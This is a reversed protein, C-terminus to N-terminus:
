VWERPNQLVDILKEEDSGKEPHHDYVWQVHPPLSMLISEIRGNTKLGFLTGKDHVLNFEVYRGRRIEQWDRQEQTYDLDKRKEVIPVYAELFSDGVETVFYYWNEMTMVDSAKCYDFFLGGIGRAENRHTNHFYEDCRAKYKPYFNTNHKDCATKCTQHFHKADEEFLYYPTLDQGGGFWQDVINGDQDYMEFYRWNAHVTPVMPSKPHIVLSLGCAFFDADEVGFYKQMSDPLKGHVGSINVGGKEFVNGNEIVRTRGGGGEPRKWLDEQFKAKGDIAELKSTITDQLQQIYNYFKDKM